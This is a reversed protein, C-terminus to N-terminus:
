TKEVGVADKSLAIQRIKHDFGITHDFRITHGFGIKQDLM